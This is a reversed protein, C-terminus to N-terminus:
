PPPLPSSTAAEKIWEALATFIKDRGEEQSSALQNHHGSPIRVIVAKDRTVAPLAEIFYDLHHCRVIRDAEGHILLLPKGPPWTTLGEVPEARFPWILTYALPYALPWLIITSQLTDKVVVNWDAFASILCLGDVLARLDPNAMALAATAGGMSHGLLLLKNNPAPYANRAFQLAATLDKVVSYRNLAGSDSQGYARYDFMLVDCGNQLCHHIPPILHHAMNGANGHAHVIIAKPSAHEPYQGKILWGHLKKNDDATFQVDKWRAYGYDAPNQHPMGSTPVFALREFCGALSLM